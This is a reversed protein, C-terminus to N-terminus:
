GKFHSIQLELLKKAKKSKSIGEEFSSCAKSIATHSVDFVKGIEKNSKGTLRRLLYMCNKKAQDKKNKSRLLDEREIKFEKCIFGIIAEDEVREEYRDLYSIDTSEVQLKLEKLREKIFSVGGLISGAYVDKFIDDKETLGSNVFRMYEAGNMGLVMRTAENDIYGDGRGSIYGKYSSWRYEEPREVIKAKVPNLHIYRTLGKFYSDADVILSRYRGQFLHGANRKTVNYYTTYCSNIYHMIRPLNAQLTQVLLHYHNTMLVYAYLRFRFKEKARMVYDLFKLYDSENKYINRRGDGRSTIHYFANEGLIRYPRSM